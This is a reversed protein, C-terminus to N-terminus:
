AHALRQCLSTVHTPQGILLPHISDRATLGLARLDVDPAEKVLYDTEYEQGGLYIATSVHDLQVVPLLQKACAAFM